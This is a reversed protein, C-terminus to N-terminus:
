AVFVGGLFPLELLPLDLLKALTAGKLALLRQTPGISVSYKGASVILDANGDGDLDDAAVRVGGRYGTFAVFDKLIANNLGSFVRIRSDFNTAANMGVMIDARSDGNIDGVAVNVGGFFTPFATMTRFAVGALNTGSLVVVRSGGAAQGVVLDPVRDGTVDGVAVSLGNAYATGFPTLKALEAGSAGSIVEIPKAGRAPGVVVDAFGDRNIDGTTITLGSIFTASYVKTIQSTYLSSLATLENGTSGDYVKINSVMGPGSAVILDEIKDGNVDGAAVRAGGLFTQPFPSVTFLRNGFTDFAKVLAPRGADSGAVILRRTIIGGNGGTIDSVYVDTLYKQSYAGDKDQIRAAATFLGNVAYAHQASSSKSGVLDWTGNNDFDFDYKLGAAVDAAADSPNVFSITVPESTKKPGDNTLATAFPAANLVEIRVPSADDTGGDDDRVSLFVDYTGQDDPTFSIGGSTGSDFFVGNKKVTWTYTFTDMPSPDTVKSGLTIKNGEFSTGLPLGTISATPPLNDVRVGIRDNFVFGAGSTIKTKVTYVGNDPANDLYTHNATYVSIGANLFLTQSAGDGWDIAVIHTQFQGNPDAFTGQLLTSENENVPNPTASLTDSGGIGGGGGGGILGTDFQAMGTAWNDSTRSDAFESTTWFSGDVPDIGVSTYDGLRFPSGDFANYAAQGAIALVAPETSGPPEGPNQGTVYISLFETDSSQMYSFGLAGLPNIDVSGILAGIGPGPNILGEQKLAPTGTSTDFEYWSVGPDGNADVDHTGVLRNNRWAVARMRPDDTGNVFTGGPQQATGPPSYANVNVAVDSYTPSNSLINTMQVVHIQNDAGTSDSLMWLPSGPPAEHMQAPTDVGVVFPPNSKFETHTAPDQDVYTSKDIAIALLGQFNNSFDYQNFTIVWAEATYGFRPFDAWTDVGGITQRTDIRQIETWDSSLNSPSPGNSVAINLFSTASGDTEDFIIIFRQVYEDYIVYPDYTGTTSFFSDATSTALVTGARDFVAISSNVTEVERDPGVAGNVDPPVFDNGPDGMKLGPFSTTVTVTPTCRTELCELRPQARHERGAPRKKKHFRSTSFPNLWTSM